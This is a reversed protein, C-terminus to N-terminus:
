GSLYYIITKFLFISLSCYKVQDHKHDYSTHIELKNPTVIRHNFKCCRRYVWQKFKYLIFLVGLDLLMALALQSYYEMKNRNCSLTHSPACLACGHINNSFFFRKYHKIQSDSKEERPPWSCACIHM